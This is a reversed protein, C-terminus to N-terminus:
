ENRLADIPKLKAARNAPLIGFVIGILMSFIFSSIVTAPAVYPEVNMLSSIGYTGGIGILIGIVGGITTLVVSEILFLSLIDKRKAGIAKRIGIEKTRETVSVLMINMIGIGGVLLSIGSIGALLLSMTQTVTDMTDLLDQQNLISYSNTDNKFKTKLTKDITSIALEVDEASSAQINVVKVGSTFLLRESTSIPILIKDDYSSLLSEGKEELLGVVTFPLGNLSLQKGIPNTKGFFTKAAEAGILVVKQRTDVDISMIYRGSQIHFNQVDEYNPTIGDISVTEKKSNYKAEVNGSIVPSVKEIGEKEKWDLTEKYDISTTTGRGVIGITILNSGLDKVEDTIMRTSSQAISILTIVSSIGIVIGLMTLFSRLKHSKLNKMAMKIATFFNM